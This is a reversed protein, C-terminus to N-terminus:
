AHHTVGTKKEKERIYTINSGSAEEVVARPPEQRGDLYFSQEGMDDHRIVDLKLVASSGRALAV